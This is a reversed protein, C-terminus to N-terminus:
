LDPGCAAREAAVRPSARRRTEALSPARNNEGWGCGGTGIVRRRTKTRQSTALVAAAGAACVAASGDRRVSSWIKLERVNTFSEGSMLKGTADIPTGREQDRWMGMANFNDLALGPPDM